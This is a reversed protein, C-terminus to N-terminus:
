CIADSEKKKEGAGSADCVFHKCLSFVLGWESYTGQRLNREVMHTRTQTYMLLSHTNLQETQISM